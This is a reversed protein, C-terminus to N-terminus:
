MKEQKVELVVMGSWCKLGSIVVSGLQLHEVGNVKTMCSSRVEGDVFQFTVYHPCASDGRYTGPKKENAVVSVVTHFPQTIFIRSYPEILRLLLEGGLLGFLLGGFWM